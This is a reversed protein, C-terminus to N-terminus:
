EYMRKRIVVSPVMDMVSECKSCSRPRFTAGPLLTSNGLPLFQKGSHM